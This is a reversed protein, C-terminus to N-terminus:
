HNNVTTYGEQYGMAQLASIVAQRQVKNKGEALYPFRFFPKFNPLSSLVAHAKKIDTIFQETTVKNLNLHSYSHNAIMHGAEGYMRLRKMSISGQAHIATAFIGIPPCNTEKLAQLIKKTKEMGGHLITSPMPVD